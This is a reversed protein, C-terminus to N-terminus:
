FVIMSVLLSSFSAYRSELDKVDFPMSFRSSKQSLIINSGSSSNSQTAAFFEMSRRSLTLRSDLPSTRCRNHVGSVSRLSFRNALATSIGNREVSVSRTSRSSSEIAKRGFSLPSRNREALPPNSQHDLPKSLSPNFHNTRPFLCFPLM